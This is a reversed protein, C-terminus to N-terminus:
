RIRIGPVYRKWFNFIATSEAYKKNRAEVQFINGRNRWDLKQLFITLIEHTYAKTEKTEPNANVSKFKM